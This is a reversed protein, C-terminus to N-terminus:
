SQHSRMVWPASHDVASIFYDMLERVKINQILYLKGNIRYSEVDCEAFDIPVDVPYSHKCFILLTPKHTALDDAMREYALKQGYPIPPANVHKAEILVYAKNHYEMMADIDTPTINGYRLGSFDRLQRAREPYNIIGRESIM